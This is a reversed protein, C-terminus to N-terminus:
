CTILLNNNIRDLLTKILMFDDKSGSSLAGYNANAQTLIDRVSACATLGLLRAEDTSLVVSSGALASSFHASLASALFQARYMPAGDGSAEAEKIIRLVYGKLVNTGTCNDPLTLVNGYAALYSCLAAKARDIQAQGNKNQWYGMTFGGSILRCVTV